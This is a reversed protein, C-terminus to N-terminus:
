ITTELISNRGPHSHSRATPVIVARYVVEILRGRKHIGIRTLFAETSLHGLWRKRRSHVSVLFSLLLVHDAALIIATRLLRQLNSVM